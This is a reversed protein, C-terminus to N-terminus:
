ESIRTEVFFSHINKEYTLMELNLFRYKTCTNGFIPTKKVKFNNKDFM